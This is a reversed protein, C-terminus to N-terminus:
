YRYASGMLVHMKCQSADSRYVHHGFRILALALHAALFNFYLEYVFMTLRRQASDGGDSGPTAVQSLTYRARGEADVVIRNASRHLM